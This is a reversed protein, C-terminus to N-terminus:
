ATYSLAMYPINNRESINSAATAPLAYSAPDQIAGHLPRGAAIINLTGQSPWYVNGNDFMTLTPTSSFTAAIWHWGLVTPTYNVAIETYATGAGVATSATQVLRSNPTGASNHSYVGITVNGTTVTGSTLIRLFRIATLSPLFIPMYYVRNATATMSAGTVPTHLPQYWVRQSATSVGNIIATQLATMVGCHTQDHQLGLTTRVAAISADDLISRATATCTIEEIDGAGATSRGLIRDTATVNQIKAYTVADNAIKATTVANNAITVVGNIGNIDLETTTLFEPQGSGASFRGIIGPSALDAMKGFTVAKNDIKGSTVALANIKQTTVADDAIKATTVSGSALQTAGVGGISTALVQDTTRHRWTLNAASYQWLDNDVPTGSAMNVGHIKHVTPSPYTGQLDGGAPGETGNAVELVVGGPETVNVSTSDPPFVTIIM